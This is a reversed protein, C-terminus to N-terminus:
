RQHSRREPAAPPPPEPTDTPTPAASPMATASPAPAPKVPDVIVCLHTGPLVRLTQADDGKLCLEPSGFEPAADLCHGIQKAAVELLAKGDDTFCRLAKLTSPDSAQACGALLALTLLLRRIM